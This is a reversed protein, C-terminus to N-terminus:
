VRELAEAILPQDRAALAVCETWGTAVDTLVFTHVLRGAMSGGCHAILDAERYGPAPDQWDAFTRVPSVRESPPPSEEASRHGQLTNGARSM